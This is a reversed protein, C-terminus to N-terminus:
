RSSQMSEGSGSHRRVQVTTAAVPGWESNWNISVRQVDNRADLPIEVIDSQKREADGLRRGDIFREITAPQKRFAGATPGKATLRVRLPGDGSLTWVHDSSSWQANLPEIELRPSVDDATPLGAHHTGHSRHAFLSAGRRSAITEVFSHGTNGFTIISNEPLPTAAIAVIFGKLDPIFIAGSEDFGNWHEAIVGGSRPERNAVTKMTVGIQAKTQPDVTATGAQIHIRSAMPLTYSLTATRRNYATAPIATMRPAPGDAPFYLDKGSAGRWEIRFSYAEDPVIVERDDRGDWGFSIPGTVPQSSALTRVPYGDRDVIVVSASGPRAFAITVTTVDRAAVNLSSQSVKVSQIARVAAEEGNALSSLVALSLAIKPLFKM